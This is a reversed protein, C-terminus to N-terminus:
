SPNLEPEYAPLYYHVVPVTEGPRALLFPVEGPTFFLSTLWAVEQDTLRGPVRNMGISVHLAWPHPSEPTEDFSVVARYPGLLIVGPPQLGPRGAVVQRLARSAALVDMAASSFRDAALDVECRSLDLEPWAEALEYELEFHGRYREVLDEYRGPLGEAEAAAAMTALDGPNYDSIVQQHDLPWVTLDHVTECGLCQVSWLMHTSHRVLAPYGARFYQDPADDDAGCGACILRFPPRPALEFENEDHLQGM